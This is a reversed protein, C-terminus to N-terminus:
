HRSMNRLILLRILHTLAVAAAAVYTLAAATLVARARPQEDSALYGGHALLYMARSSANFEVPLTVIQFALAGLFLLIGIDMMSPSALFLGIIFLPFALQSGLAAVPFINNRVSLPVYHRAHQLAHGTEHAAVALSAISTGQYVDPSLRVRRSRPDYHDTLHGSVQEVAVDHLGARALLERAVQAGTRGARSPVQLYKRFTSQVKHQAWLAFLLAPIILIFTADGFFFM